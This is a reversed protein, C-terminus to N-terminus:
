FPVDNRGTIVAIILKIVGLVKQGTTKTKKGVKINNNKSKTVKEPKIVELEKKVM